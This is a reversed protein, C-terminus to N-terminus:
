GAPGPARHSRRTPGSPRRADHPPPTGDDSYTVAIHPALMPAPDSASEPPLRLSRLDPLDRLWEGRDGPPLGGPLWLHTLPLAALESLDFAGRLQIRSRGGLERLARLRATDQVAFYLDDQPLHGIIEEAYTRTDFRHWTWALQSRVALSPHTRFRRLVPLAADTGIRSATVVVAEAESETLGAPGPLLSLVMPGCDALLLAMSVRSPPLLGATSRLARQRVDPDLETAQELCAAALVVSRVSSKDLLGEMIRAREAPRAHAVAMRIVDEWQEDDGHGVLLGFDGEEVAAKAGLYDQFTRHVFDVREWAPERLLGSRELLLRYVTETDAEIHAMNRLAATLQALADARSMEAQGNRILWYALRQLLQVQTDKSLRLESRAGVAREVDRRELLMSLAADYLDKRSHPLFGRRERHLACLLGCMLPNVALRGLDGSTRIAALLDDALETGAGAATHWRGVFGAVDNRSMPSLTLETFDEGALWDERVASPRCTVLWLNGPFEGMLERLWRRVEEREHEPIEDVGDVLVLGRGARLVRDAWGPPQAGATSSRVAHLFHDPTPPLGERVVRRLPLVFPVRGVLHALHPSYTRRAATVALWQVLTSKGSGAAGRLLVRDQGTLAREATTPTGAGNTAELPIYAADLPWERAHQLDLGYITLEGHGRIIHEAYRQEFRADEASQSPVRAILLDLVATHEALQRTQEALTRPVFDSRQTFFNLIHLAATDVLREYLGTADASLHGASPPAHRRLERAFERPGLRVAQADDMTLTGLAQLTGALAHAVATEEDAPVPHEHPGTSQIARHTLEAALRELDAEELTRQEGRFSVLSSIRVPEAVLGAGPGPRAFLKKVLPVVATTALRVGLTAPEM